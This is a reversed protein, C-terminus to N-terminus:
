RWNTSSFTLHDMSSGSRGSMCGVKEGPTPSYSAATGGNGGYPGFTRGLNTFFAIQNMMSGSRYDVRMVWEGPSLALSAKPPGASHGHAAVFAGSYGDNGYGFQVGDVQSGFWINWGTIPQNQCAPGDDWPSGGSGGADVPGMVPGPAAGPDPSGSRGEDEGITMWHALADPYDTPGYASILDPYRALYSAISFGSSAQRGQAIGYNLWHNVTCLRDFGPCQQQVDLYRAYYYGISFVRSAQRGENIGNDMWHQGLDLGNAANAQLDPYADYYYDWDFVEAAM